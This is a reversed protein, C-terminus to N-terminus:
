WANYIFVTDAVDVICNKPIITVEQENVGEAETPESMESIRCGSFVFFASRSGAGYVSDIVEFMLNFESGGRFYQDYLLKTRTANGQITFSVEHERSTPIPVASVRSGNLYHQEELSNNVNWEFETIEDYTTGSPIHVRCDSWMFARSGPTTGPIALTSAAGSKFTVLQPRYGIEVTLPEGQAATVTLEDVICGQAQRIFNSGTAFIQSDEVTFSVFPNLTGSTFANGNTSNTESIIHQYPSPSGLDQCSGLAFKLMRWDHPHYSLTGEHDLAGVYFAGLNRSANGAFRIPTVNESDEIENSQTWGCWILSTGTPNGYTGSENFIGFQNSDGIYRTM